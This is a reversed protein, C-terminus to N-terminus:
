VRSRRLRRGEFDTHHGQGKCGRREGPGCTPYNCNSQICESSRRRTRAYEIVALYRQPSIVMIATGLVRLLATVAFEKRDQPQRLDTLRERSNDLSLPHAVLLAKIGTGQEFVLRRRKLRIEPRRRPLPGNQLRRRLHSAAGCTSRRGPAIPPLNDNFGRQPRKLRKSRSVDWLRRNEGVPHVCKPHGAPGGEGAFALCPQPLIARGCLGNRRELVPAKM